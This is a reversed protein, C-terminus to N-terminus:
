TEGRTGRLKDSDSYLDPSIIVKNFIELLNYYVTEGKIESM